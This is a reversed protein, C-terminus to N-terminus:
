ESCHSLWVGRTKSKGKGEHLFYRRFLSANPWCSKGSFWLHLPSSRGRWATRCTWRLKAPKEWWGSFPPTQESPAASSATKPSRKEKIDESYNLEPQPPTRPSARHARHPASMGRLQSPSIKGKSIWCVRHTNKFHFQLSHLHSLYICVYVTGWLSWKRYHFWVRMERTPYM